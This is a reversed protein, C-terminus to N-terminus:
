ATQLLSMSIFFLVNKPAVFFLCFFGGRKGGENMEEKKCKHESQLLHRQMLQAHNLWCKEM